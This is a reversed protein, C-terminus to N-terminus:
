IMGSVIGVNDMSFVMLSRCFDKAFDFSALSGGSGGGMGSVSASSSPSDEAEEVSVTVGEGVLCSNALGPPRRPHTHRIKKREAVM